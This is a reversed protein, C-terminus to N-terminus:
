NNKINGLINHLVERASYINELEIYNLAKCIDEELQNILKDREKIALVLSEDVYPLEMNNIKVYYSNGTDQKRASKINYKM